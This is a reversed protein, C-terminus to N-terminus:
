WLRIFKKRGRLEGRIKEMHSLAAIDREIDKEKV